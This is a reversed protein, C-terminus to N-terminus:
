LKCLDLVPSEGQSASKCAITVTVGAKSDILFGPSGFLFSLIPSALHNLWSGVAVRTGCKSVIGIQHKCKVRFPSHGLLCVNM